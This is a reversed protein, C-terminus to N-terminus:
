PEVIVNTLPAEQPLTRYNLGCMGPFWAPEIGNISVWNGAGDDLWNFTHLRLAGYATEQVHGGDQVQGLRRSTKEILEPCGEWGPLNLAVYKLGNSEDFFFAARFRVGDEVIWGAARQELGDVRQDQPNGTALSVQGNSGAIVAEPIMGWRTWAWEARAVDPATGVFLLAVIAASARFSM